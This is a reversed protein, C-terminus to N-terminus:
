CQAFDCPGHAGALPQGRGTLEGSAIADARDRQGPGQRHQRGFPHQARTRSAPGVNGLAGCASSFWRIQGPLSNREAIAGNVRGTHREEQLCLRGSRHRQGAAIWVGRQQRITCEAARQRTSAALRYGPAARM